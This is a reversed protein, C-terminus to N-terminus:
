HLLSWFVIKSAKFYLHERQSFVSEGRNVLQKEACQILQLKEACQLKRDLSSSVFVVFVKTSLSAFSILFTNVFNSDIVAHVQFNSSQIALYNAFIFRNLKKRGVSKWRNCNTECRFSIQGGCICFCIYWILHTSFFGSEGKHEAPRMVFCIQSSGFFCAFDM